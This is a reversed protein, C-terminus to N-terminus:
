AMALYKKSSFTLSIVSSVIFVFRPCDCFPIQQSNALNEERCDRQSALSCPQRAEVEFVLPCTCPRPNIGSGVDSSAIRGRNLWDSNVQATVRLVIFCLQLLPSIADACICHFTLQPPWLGRHHCCWPDCPILSGRLGASGQSTRWTGLRCQCRGM